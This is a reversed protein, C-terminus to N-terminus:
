HLLDSGVPIRISIDPSEVVEIPAQPPAHGELVAKPLLMVEAIYRCGAFQSPKLGNSGLHVIRVPKKVGLSPYEHWQPVLWIKGQYEIADVKDMTGVDSFPVLVKFVEVKVM